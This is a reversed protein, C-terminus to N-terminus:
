KLEPIATAIIHKMNAWYKGLKAPTNEAKPINASTASIARIHTLLSLGRLLLIPKAENRNHKKQLLLGRTKYIQNLLYNLIPM